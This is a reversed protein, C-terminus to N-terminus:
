FEGFISGFTVAGFALMTLWQNLYWPQDPVDRFIKTVGVPREIVDMKYGALAGFYSLPVTCACWGLFIWFVLTVPVTQHAKEQWEIIDVAIILVLM